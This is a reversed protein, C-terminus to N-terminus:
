CKSETPLIKSTMYKERFTLCNSSPLEKRVARLVLSELATQHAVARHFDQSGVLVYDRVDLERLKIDNHLCVLTLIAPASVFKVLTLERLGKCGCLWAVIALFVDNETAELDIVGHNDKLFLVELAECGRLFSLNRVGDLTLDDLKLTKLSSSHNNLALLTEPGVKQAGIASFSQLSNPRLANLFGAMDSDVDDGQCQYFTLDNFDPCGQNIAKGVNENLVGGDFLTISQIRVLRGAWTMLSNRNLPGSLDELAATNM